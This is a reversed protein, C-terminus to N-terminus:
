FIENFEQHMYERLIKNVSQNYIEQANEKNEPQSLDVVNIKGITLARGDLTEEIFRTQMSNPIGDPGYGLGFDDIGTQFIKFGNHQKDGDSILAKKWDEILVGARTVLCKHGVPLFVAPIFYPTGRNEREDEDRVPIYSIRFYIRRETNKDLKEFKDLYKVFISGDDMEKGSTM